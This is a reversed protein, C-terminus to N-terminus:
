GSKVGQLLAETTAVIDDATVYYAKELPGSMPAPADPLTVRRIPAQLYDLAKEVVTASVEVAVGCSRWAADLAM